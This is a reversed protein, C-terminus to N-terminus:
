ESELYQSFSTFAVGAQGAWIPESGAFVEKYLRVWVHAQALFLQFGESLVENDQMTSWLDSGHQADNSVSANHQAGTNLCNAVTQGILYILNQWRGVIDSDCVKEYEQDKDMLKGSFDCVGQRFEGLTQAQGENEKRLLELAVSVNERQARLTTNSDTLARNERVLRDKERGLAEYSKLLEVDGSQYAKSVESMQQVSQGIETIKESLGRLGQIVESNELQEIVEDQQNNKFILQNVTNQLRVIQEKSMEDSKPKGKRSTTKKKQSSKGEARLKQTDHLLVPEKGLHNVKQAKM